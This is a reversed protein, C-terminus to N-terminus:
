NELHMKIFKGKLDLKEKKKVVKKKKKAPPAAKTEPEATISVETLM